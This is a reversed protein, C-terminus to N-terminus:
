VGKITGGKVNIGKKFTENGIIIQTMMGGKQMYISQDTNYYILISISEFIDAESLGL